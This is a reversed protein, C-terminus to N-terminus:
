LDDSSEGSKITLSDRLTVRRAFVPKNGVFVESTTCFLANCRIAGFDSERHVQHQWRGCPLANNVAKPGIRSEYTSPPSCQTLDTKRNDALLPLTWSLGRLGQPYAPVCCPM